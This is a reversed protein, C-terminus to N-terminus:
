NFEVKGVIRSQCPQAAVVVREPEIQRADREEYLQVRSVSLIERLIDGVGRFDAGERDLVVPDFPPIEGLVVNQVRFANRKM